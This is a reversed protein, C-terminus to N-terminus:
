KLKKNLMDNVYRESAIISKKKKPMNVKIPRYGRTRYLEEDGLSDVTLTDTLEIVDEERDNLHKQASKIVSIDSEDEASEEIEEDPEYAALGDDPLLDLQNLLELESVIDGISEDPKGLDLSSISNIIDEQKPPLQEQPVVPQVVVDALSPQLIKTQASQEAEHKTAVAIVDKAIREQVVDDQAAKTISELKLKNLKKLEEEERISVEHEIKRSYKNLQKRAKKAKEEIATKIADQVFVLGCKGTTRTSINNVIEYMIQGEKRDVIERLPIDFFRDSYYKADDFTIGNMLITNRVNVDILSAYDADYINLLSRGQMLLVTAMGYDDGSTLLLEIFPLYRHADDIYVFHPRKLTAQTDQMDIQLQMLLMATARIASQRYKAYEMDIIVVKKKKIADKYDIVCENIYAYDYKDRQIFDNAIDFNASPKLMEVKRGQEKAMAYLTYAIDKKDVVFTLGCDGNMIDQRALMPLVTSSKGSNKAGLILLNGYRSKESIFVPSKDANQGFRLRMEKTGEPKPTVSRKPKAVPPKESNTAPSVIEDVAVVNAIQPRPPAEKKRGRKFRDIDDEEFPQHEIDTM